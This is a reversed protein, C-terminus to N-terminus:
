RARIRHDGDEDVPTLTPAAAYTERRRSQATKRPSTMDGKAAPKLTPNGPERVDGYDPLALATNTSWHYNDGYISRFTSLTLGPQQREGPKCAVPFAQLGELPVVTRSNRASITDTSIYSDEPSTSTPTARRDMHLGGPTTLGGLQWKRRQGASPARRIDVVSIDSSVSSRRGSRRSRASM